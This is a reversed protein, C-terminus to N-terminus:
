CNLFNCMKEQMKLILILLPYSEQPSLYALTAVMFLLEALSIWFPLNEQGSLTKKAIQGM